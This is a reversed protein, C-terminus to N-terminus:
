DSVAFRVTRGEQETRLKGERALWGLAMAVVSRPADIGKEIAALTAPGSDRLFRWVTGATAGITDISTM